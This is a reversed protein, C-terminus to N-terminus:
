GCMDRFLRALRAWVCAPVADERCPTGVFVKVNGRARVTVSVVREEGGDRPRYWVKLKVGPFADPDYVVSEGDELRAACHKAVACLRFPRVTAPAAGPEARRLRADTVSLALRTRAEDVRAEAVGDLCGLVLRCFAHFDDVGAFGWGQITGSVFLKVGRSGARFPVCNRFNGRVVTGTGSAGVHPQLRVPIVVPAGGWTAGTPVDTMSARKSRRRKAVASGGAGSSAEEGEGGVVVPIEAAYKAIRERFREADVVHATITLSSASTPVDLRCGGLDESEM